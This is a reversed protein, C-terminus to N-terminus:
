WVASLIFAAHNDKTAFDPICFLTHSIDAPAEQPPAVFVPPPLFRYSSSVAALNWHKAEPLRLRDCNAASVIATLSITRHPITYQSLNLNHLM